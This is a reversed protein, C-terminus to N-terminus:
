NFNKWLYYVVDSRPCNSKANFTGPIGAFLNRGTAWNVALQSWDDGGAYAGNARCLFTLLQDNALPVNPSFTTASTGATIGQKVAWAVAQSYWDDPAVDTFPSNATSVSPSGMARWLFTVAQSRTVTNNPSFTTASTGTTVQKQVAWTVADAYYANAPVDQFSSTASGPVIIRLNGNSLQGYNNYVTFTANFTGPRIPVFYLQNMAAADVNLSNNLAARGTNSYLIGTQDSVTGFRIYTWASGVANSIANSLLNAGTGNSLASSFLYPSADPLTLTCNLTGSNINVSVTGNLSRNNYTLVYPVSFTGASIPETYMSIYQAFSYDTNARIATGNPLRMVGVQNNGTSSFRITAYNSNITDGYLSRFQNSMATSTGTGTYNVGLTTSVSPNYTAASQATVTVNCSRDIQSGYADTITATITATGTTGSSTVTASDGSGTVRAVNVNSSDWRVTYYISKPSVNLGIYQNSYTALNLYSPNMTATLNSGRIYINITGSLTSGGYTLSYPLQFTGVAYPEFYMNIWDDFTYSTNTKIPTGNRLRIVGYRGTGTSSFKMTATNPLTYGFYSRWQKSMISSVDTGYYDSGMTVTLSPDYTRRSREKEKESEPKTVTVQCNRTIATGSPDKITAVITLSGINGQSIVTVSDGNGNVTAIKPNSSSWSVSYGSNAPYVNLKLFQSSYTSLTMLSPNLEASIITQGGSANITIRGSMVNAGDTITYGTSLSGAAVPMFSLQQMTAYTFSVNASIPTGDQMRISGISSSPSTMRVSASYNLDIGFQARYANGISSVVTDLNLNTGVTASASTDFNAAKGQVTVVCTVPKSSINTATDTVYATIQATRSGSILADVATATVTKGTGQLIVVNPNDNEWRYLYGATDGSGGTATLTLNASAGTNLTLSTKSLSAELPLVPQEAEKVQVSWTATANNNPNEADSVTLSVFGSGAYGGIITANGRMSDSILINDSSDWEFTYSGSGGSVSASLAQEKGETLTVSSSSAKVTVPKSEATVTVHVSGSAQDGDSPRTVTLIIDAEGPSVATIKAGKKGNSVKAVSTDSSQWAYQLSSSDGTIVASVTTQEGAKLKVNTTLFIVFVDEIQKVVKSAEASLSVDEDENSAAQLATNELGDEDDPAAIAWPAAPVLSVLLTLSLAAALIRKKTQKM